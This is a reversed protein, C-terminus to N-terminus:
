MEKACMVKSKSSLTLELELFKYIYRERRKDRTDRECVYSQKECKSNARVKFLVLHARGESKRARTHKSNARVGIFKYIDGKKKERVDRECM